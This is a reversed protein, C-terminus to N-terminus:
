DQDPYRQGRLEQPVVPPLNPQADPQNASCACNQKLNPQNLHWEAHPETTSQNLLPQSEVIQTGQIPRQM